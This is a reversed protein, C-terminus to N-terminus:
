SSRKSTQVISKLKNRVQELEDVELKQNLWNEMYKETADRMRKMFNNGLTDKGSKIDEMGLAINKELEIKFFQDYVDWALEDLALKENKRLKDPYRNLIDTKYAEELPLAKLIQLATITKM